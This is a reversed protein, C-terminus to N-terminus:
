CDFYEGFSYQKRSDLMERTLNLDIDSALVCSTPAHSQDVIASSSTAVGEGADSLVSPIYRSSGAGAPQAIAYQALMKVALDMGTATLSYRAPSGSKNM